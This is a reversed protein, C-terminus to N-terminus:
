IGKRLLNSATLESEARRTQNTATEHLAWNVFDLIGEHLSKAPVYGLVKAAKQIDAFCHRIDGVRYRGSVYFAQPRGVLEGLIEAIKLVSVPQGSGVNIVEGAARGCNLALLNAQVVDSVHILDRLELGDEYVEVTEGSKLKNLFIPL